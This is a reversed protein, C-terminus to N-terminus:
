KELWSETLLCECLDFILYFAYCSLVVLFSYLPLTETLFTEPPSFARFCFNILSLGAWSVLMIFTDMIFILLIAKIKKMGDRRSLRDGLILNRLGRLNRLNAFWLM